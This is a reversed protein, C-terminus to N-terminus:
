KEFFVEYLDSTEEKEPICCCNEASQIEKMENSMRKRCNVEMMEFCNKM